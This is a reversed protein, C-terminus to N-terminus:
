RNLPRARATGKAPEKYEPNQQMNDGKSDKKITNIVRENNQRNTEKNITYEVGGGGDCKVTWVGLCIHKSTPREGTAM